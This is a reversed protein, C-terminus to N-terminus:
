REEREEARKILAEEIQWEVAKEELDEPDLYVRLIRCYDFNCTQEYECGDCPPADEAEEPPNADYYDRM